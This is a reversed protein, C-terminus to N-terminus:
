DRRDDWRISWHCRRRCCGWTPVTPSCLSIALRSNSPVRRGSLIESRRSLCVRKEAPLLQGPLTRASSRQCNPSGSASGSAFCPNLVSGDFQVLRLRILLAARRPRNFCSRRDGLCSQSYRILFAARRPRNFHLSFQRRPATQAAFSRCSM